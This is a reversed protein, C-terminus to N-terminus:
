RLFSSRSIIRFSLVSLFFSHVVFVLFLSEANPKL